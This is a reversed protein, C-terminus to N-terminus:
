FAYMYNTIVSKECFHQKKLFNKLVSFVFFGSKGFHLFFAPFRAYHKPRLSSVIFSDIRFLPRVSRPPASRLQWSGQTKPCLAASTFCLRFSFPVGLYLLRPPFINRRPQAANFGM